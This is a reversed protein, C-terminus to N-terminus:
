ERQRFYDLEALLVCGGAAGRITNESFASWQIKTGIIEPKTVIISMGARLDKSPNPNKLSAGAWRDKEPDIEEQIIILPIPSSPLNVYNKSNFLKWQEIIWELTVSTESEIEIHVMHGFDRKVRKCNVDVNFIPKIETQKQRKSLLRILEEKIKMAEGPIEPSPTNGLRTSILLELGGGSVSQETNISIHKIKIKDQIPKISLAVPMVTCNTSCIIGPENLGLIELHDSNVEPIILPVNSDMRHQSANSYVRCGINVFLPECKAAITSPLASFIIDVNNKLAFEVGTDMGLVILDPLEPRKEDLNWPLDRLNKGVSKPSGIIGILEFFPHNSLRQQLRQSVLGGSGLIICGKKQGSM